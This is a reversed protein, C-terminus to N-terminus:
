SHATLAIYAAANQPVADMRAWCSYTIQRNAMREYPNVLLEVDKVRRIVYGERLDGFAGWNTTANAAIDSFGQDVVVRYGLITTGGADTSLAAEDVGKLMPRNSGDLIKRITKLSADNMAWVCGPNRYAPDIAHVWNVFDAYVFTSAISGTGTLGNVLGKPQKVGSGTVLHSAQIRALRTGLKSSVLGLIDFASDQVLERSVRLPAGGTGGAMYSYAGLSAEGFVLDAGGSFTGGEDVVEGTNSTDDLTPWPLNNGTATVLEEAEQAVGGFAKMKDVLKQRFGEPVLYGGESSTNESQANRLEAIDANAQGTRLYATFAVDITDEAKDRRTILAPTAVQRGAQIRERAAITRERRAQAEALEAERAEIQGLEEDTLDRGETEAGDVIAALADQIEEITNV